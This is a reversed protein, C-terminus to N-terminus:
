RRGATVTTSVTVNALGVVVPLELDDGAGVSINEVIYPKFGSAEITLVYSGPNLSTFRWRGRENTTRQASDGMIAPSTLRVVAKDLPRGQEDTVSGALDGRLGQSNVTTTLVAFLWVWVMSLRRVSGM